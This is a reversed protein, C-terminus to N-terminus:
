SCIRRSMVIIVFNVFRRHFYGTTMKLNKSALESIIEKYLGFDRELCHIAIVYRANVNM